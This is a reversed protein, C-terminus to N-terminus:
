EGEIGKQEEREIERDGKNHVENIEKTTTWDEEGEGNMIVRESEIAEGM